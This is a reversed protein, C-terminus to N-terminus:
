AGGGDSAFPAGYRERFMVERAPRRTTPGFRRAAWGLPVIAHVQANPPLGLLPRLEDERAKWRTTLVTGLGLARAALLLNQVAPFISADMAMVGSISEGFSGESCVAILVPVDQWPMRDPPPHDPRAAGIEDFIRGLAAKTERDRIVIFRWPQANRASPARIAADVIREILADDVPDPKFHRIARQSHIAEFLSLESV